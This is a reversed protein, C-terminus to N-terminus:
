LDSESYILRASNEKLWVNKEEYDPVHQAVLRWFRPGHHPHEAHALEHVIVYDIVDPPAMMLRWNLSLTGTRPSYSGWRTKQNRIQLQGYETGMVECYHTARQTLHRRAESRYLQELEDRISTEEVRRQALQIVKKRVMSWLINAIELRRPVGLVPFLEGEEFRREPIAERYRAYKDRQRLVWTANETIVTDPDISAGDPVVLKIGQLGADIRVKSARESEVVRYAVREGQIDVQRKEATPM